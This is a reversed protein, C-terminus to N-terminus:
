IPYQDPMERKKTKTHPENGNGKGRHCGTFGVPQQKISMKRNIKDYQIEGQCFQKELPLSM